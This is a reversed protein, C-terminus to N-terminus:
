THLLFHGVIYTVTEVGIMLAAVQLHLASLRLLVKEYSTKLVHIYSKDQDGQRNTSINTGHTEFCILSAWAPYLVFFRLTFASALVAIDRIAVAETSPSGEAIFITGIATPLEAVIKQALAFLMTPLLLDRIHYVHTTQTTRGIISNTWRYHVRELQVATVLEAIATL